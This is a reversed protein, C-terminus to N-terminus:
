PLLARKVLIGRRVKSYLLLKDMKLSKTQTHSINCNSCQSKFCSTLGEPNSDCFHVEM